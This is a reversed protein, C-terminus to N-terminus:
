IRLRNHEYPNEPPHAADRRRRYILIGAGALLGGVAAVAILIGAMSFMGLIYPLTLDQSAEPQRIVEVVLGPKEQLFSLLVHV